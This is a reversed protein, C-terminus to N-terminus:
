EMGDTDGRRAQRHARESAWGALKRLRSATLADDENATLNVEDALLDALTATALSVVDWRASRRGETAAWTLWERGRTALEPVGIAALRAKECLYVLESDTRSAAAWALRAFLFATLYARQAEASRSLERCSLAVNQIHVGADLGGHLTVRLTALSAAITGPGGSIKPAATNLLLAKVANEAQLVAYAATGLIPELERIFRRRGEPTDEGKLRLPPPQPWM